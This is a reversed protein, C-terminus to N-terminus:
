PCSLWETQETGSQERRYIAKIHPSILRIFEQRKGRKRKSAGPFSKRTRWGSPRCDCSERCLAPHQVKQLFPCIMAPAEDPISMKFPLTSASKLCARRSSAQRSSALLLTDAASNGFHSPLKFKLPLPMCRCSAASLGRRRLLWDM